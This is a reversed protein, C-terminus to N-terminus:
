MVCRGDDGHLVPGGLRGHHPNGDGAGATKGLDEGLLDALGGM